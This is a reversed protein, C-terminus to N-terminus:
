PRWNYFHDELEATGIGGDWEVRSVVKLEDVSVFTLTITREFDTVVTGGGGVYSYTHNAARYRLKRPTAPASPIPFGTDYEVEYNGAAIGNNWADDNIINEDLLNKIVEIGEAALYTGVYEDAIIRNLSLSRSLLAISGMFGVMLVTIAVLAEAVM